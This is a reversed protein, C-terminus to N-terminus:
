TGGHFLIVVLVKWFFLFSFPVFKYRNLCWSAMSSSASSYNQAFDSYLDDLCDCDAIVGITTELLHKLFNNLPYAQMTM